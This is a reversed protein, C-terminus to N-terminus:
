KVLGPKGILVTILTNNVVASVEINDLYTYGKKDPGADTGDDFKINISEVTGGTIPPDLDAPSWRKRMWTYGYPDAWPGTGTGELCGVTHLTLLGSNNIVVEFRPSGNSCHVDNRVDFGLESLTIGTVGQINAGAYGCSSTSGFNQLFLAHNNDGADPLGVQTVWAARFTDTACTGVSEVPTARLAMQASAVVVLAFSTVAVLVAILAIRRM